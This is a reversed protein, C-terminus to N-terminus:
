GWSLNCSIWFQTKVPEKTFEGKKLRDQLNVLNLFWEILSSVM